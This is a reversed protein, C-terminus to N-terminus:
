VPFYRGALKYFILKLYKFAVELFTAKKIDKDGYITNFFLAFLVQIIFLFSTGKCGIKSLM